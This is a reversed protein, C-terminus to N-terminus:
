IVDELGESSEKVEEFEADIVVGASGLLKRPDLDQQKALETIRKIMEDTTLDKHTVNVTHETTAHLGVRNFTMEIAKLKDKRNESTTPANLIELLERVALIQSSQLRRKAEEHIAALVDEDHALRHGTVRLSKEDGTYGALAAARANNLGGEELTAIVFAQQRPLLKRMAPGLRGEDPIKVMITM